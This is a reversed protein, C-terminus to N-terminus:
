ERILGILVNKIQANIFHKIFDYDIKGSSDIPFKIEIDKIKEWSAMENYGFIQSFYFLQTTLYLGDEVFMPSQQKSITFVRAHTVM